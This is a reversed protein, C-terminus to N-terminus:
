RRKRKARVPQRRMPKPEPRLDDLADDGFLLKYLWEIFFM